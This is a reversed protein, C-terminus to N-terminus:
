VNNRVIWAIKYYDNCMVSIVVGWTLHVDIDHKVTDGLKFKM